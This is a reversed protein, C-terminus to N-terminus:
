DLSAHGLLLLRLHPYALSCHALSYILPHLCFSVKGRVYLPRILDKNHLNWIHVGYGPTYILAYGAYATGWYAGKLKGTLSSRFIGEPTLSILCAAYM